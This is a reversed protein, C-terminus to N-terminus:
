NGVAKQSAKASEEVPKLEEYINFYLNTRVETIVEPLHESVNISSIKTPSLENLVGIPSNVFYEDMKTPKNLAESKWVSQRVPDFGLLEWIAINGEESLKAYNLFEAAIQKRKSSAFVVTGTGGLGVSEIDSGETMPMKYIKIKGKLDPMFDTFRGMYWLPMTISAVQGNNMSGYFEEAHYFGGPAISVVKDKILQQLNEYIAIAKPDDLNPMGENNLLDAGAQNLMGWTTFPDSTEVATMPINTKEYVTKAALWYDDWTKIDDPNVGAKDMIEMNYYTVTAGVHFGVGYYNGDKGYINFRSMVLDDKIPEIYENMPHFAPKGRLFNPFKSIEIDAIDPGGRGSQVAVQLKNHVEQFPLNSVFLKITNDPNNENWRNQMEEYFEQHSSHFTWVELKTEKASVAASTILMGAILVTNKISTKM